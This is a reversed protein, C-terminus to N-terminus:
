GPAKDFVEIKLAYDYLYIYIYIWWLCLIDGYLWWLEHGELHTPQLPNGEEPLVLRSGRRRSFSAMPVKARPPHPKPDAPFNEHKPRFFVDKEIM